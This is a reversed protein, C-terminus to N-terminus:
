QIIGRIAAQKNNVDVYTVYCVMQNDEVTRNDSGVAATSSDLDFGKEKYIYDAKEVKQMISNEIKKKMKEEGKNSNNIQKQKMM